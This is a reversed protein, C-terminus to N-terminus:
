LSQIINQDDHDQVKLILDKATEKLAESSFQDIIELCFADLLLKKAEQAELGRTKLYFLADKDLDAITAGHSAKVDDAFIRLNPRSNIIGHEGMMLTAHRQYSNTFLATDHVHIQGMFSAKAKNMLVTKVHQSSSTIKAKHEFHTTVHYDNKEEILSLGHFISDCKEQEHIVHLHFKSPAEPKTVDVVKVKAEKKLHITMADLRMAKSDSPARAVELCAGTELEIDIYSATQTFQHCISTFILELSGKKSVHIYTNSTGMAVDKQSLFIIQLPTLVKLGEPVILLLGSLQAQCLLVFPDLEQKQNQVLKAHVFPMYASVGSELSEIIISKDVDQIDSLEYNIVGDCIVLYSRQCEPYVKELIDTKSLDKYESNFQKKEYLRSLPFYAYDPHKKDPLGVELFHDFAKQTYLAAGAKLAAKDTKQEILSNLFVTKQDEKM